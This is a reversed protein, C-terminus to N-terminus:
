LTNCLIVNGKSSINVPRRGFLAKNPAFTNKLPPCTLFYHGSVLTVLKAPFMRFQPTLGLRSMKETKYQVLFGFSGFGKANGM